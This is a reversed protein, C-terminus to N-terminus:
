SLKPNTNLVKLNRFPCRFKLTNCFDQLSVQAELLLAEAWDSAPWIEARSMTVAVPECSFM